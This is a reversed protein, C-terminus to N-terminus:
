AVLREIVRCALARDALRAKLAFLRHVCQSRKDGPRLEELEAELDILQKVLVSVERDKVVRQLFDRSEKSWYCRNTLSYDVAWEWSNACDARAQDGRGPKMLAKVMWPNLSLGELIGAVSEDSRGLEILVLAMDFYANPTMGDLAERYRALALELQGTRHYATALMAGLDASRDPCRQLCECLLETASAYELNKLHVLALNTTARIYPRVELQVWSYVKDPDPLQLRAMARAKEFCAQAQILRGWDFWCVGESNVTDPDFPDYERARAFSARAKEPSRAFEAQAQSVLYETREPDPVTQAAALRADEASMGRQRLLLRLGSLLCDSVERGAAMVEDAERLRWLERSVLRLAKRFKLQREWLGPQVLDPAREQWLREAQERVGEWRPAIQPHKQEVMARFALWGQDDLIPRLEAANKFTHLVRQRVEGGKRQGHILSIGKSRVRWFAM